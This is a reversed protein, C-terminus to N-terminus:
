FKHSADAAKEAAEEVPDEGDEATLVAKQLETLRERLRAAMARGDRGHIGGGGDYGNLWQTFEDEQISGSADKDLGVLVSRITKDDLDEGCRHVLERFEEKDLAGSADKDHNSFLIHFLRRRDELAKHAARLKRRGTSTLLAGLVPMGAHNAAARLKAMKSDNGAKDLTAAIGGHGGHRVGGRHKSMHLLLSYMPLVVLGLHVMIFLAIVHAAIVLATHRRVLYCSSDWGFAAWHYWLLTICQSSSFLAIRVMLGILWPKDAWFRPEIGDLSETFDREIIELEHHDIKDNGDKDFRRWIQKALDHKIEDLKAGLVLCVLLALYMPLEFPHELYGELFLQFGLILWFTMHIGCINAFDNQLTKRIHRYFSFRANTELANKSLYYRRLAVFAFFDLGQTFQRVVHRAWMGARSGVDVPARVREIRAWQTFKQRTRSKERGSSAIFSALASSHSLRKPGRSPKRNSGPIHEDVHDPIGHLIGSPTNRVIDPPVSTCAQKAGLRPIGQLKYKNKSGPLPVVDVTSSLSDAKWLDEAKMEMLQLHEFMEWQAVRAYSFMYVLVTMTIHVVSQFFILHHVGHLAHQEILPEYGKTCASGAASGEASGPASGAASNSSSGLLMRRAANSSNHIGGGGSNGGSSSSSNGYAGWISECAAYARPVGWNEWQHRVPVCIQLVDDELTTLMLSIFGVLMIEEKIHRVAAVLGEAGSRHFAHELRHLFTEFLASITIFFTLVAILRESHSEEVNKGAGM